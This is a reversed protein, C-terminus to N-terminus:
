TWTLVVQGNGSRVGQTHSVNTAAPDTFSSGGGGGAAGLSPFLPGRGGGGGGGGFYGGGGGGGGTKEPGTYTGGVGGTGSSGDTGATGNTGAAGGAGGASQTGGKGPGALGSFGPLGVGDGGVLGGGDGGGKAPGPNGGVGGNGSGGGGGAVVLRTGGRRVDSAGGGGGGDGTSGGGGNFGGSPTPSGAIADPGRGGVTISLTEGPTVVLRATVLGGKGGPTINWGGEGGYATVDLLTVGPPVLFSAAAGSFEFIALGSAAQAAAPAAISTIAPLLVATRGLRRLLERRSVAGRDLESEELLHAASLQDVALIVLADAEVAEMGVGLEATIDAISHSGDCREWVFAATANLSHVQQRAWDYICVEEDLGEVHATAIRRPFIMAEPLM